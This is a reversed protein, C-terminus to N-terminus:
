YAEMSVITEMVITVAIILRGTWSNNPDEHLTCPDFLLIRSQPTQTTPVSQNVALAYM